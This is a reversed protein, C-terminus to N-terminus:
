RPLIAASAAVAKGVRSMGSWVGLATAAAIGVLVVIKRTTPIGQGHPLVEVECLVRGRMHDVDCSPPIEGFLSRQHAATLEPECVPRLPSPFLDLRPTSDSADIIVPHDSISEGDDDLPWVM